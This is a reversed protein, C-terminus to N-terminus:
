VGDALSERLKQLGLRMRGKVTGLPTETNEAIQKVTFGSFYALEITERQELPLASLAQCVRERTLTRDTEVWPDGTRRSDGFNEDVPGASQPRVARRRLLDICRHRVITTLWTQLNSRAADYTGAHRWVQMLSEQVIDEASPGDGLLHIAVSYMVRAHRDYLQEFPESSNLVSAAPLTPANQTGAYQLDMGM